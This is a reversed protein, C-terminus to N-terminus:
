QIGSELAKVIDESANTTSTTITLENIKVKNKFILIRCRVTDGSVSYVLKVINAKSTESKIFGLKNSTGRTSATELNENVAEKLDLPDEDSDDRANSCYVLPKDVMLRIGNRVEDDVLGIRINATGYPQAEQKLGLSQM